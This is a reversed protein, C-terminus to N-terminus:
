WYIENEVDTVLMLKALITDDIKGPPFSTEMILRWKNSENALSEKPLLNEASSDQVRRHSFRIRNVLQGCRIDM